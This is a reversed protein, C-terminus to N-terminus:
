VYVRFASYNKLDKLALPEMHNEGYEVIIEKFLM